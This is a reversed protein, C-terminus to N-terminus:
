LNRLIAFTYIGTNHGDSFEISYAYNGVPTMSVIDLPLTKELPLVQLPNKPQSDSDDSMDDAICRACPCANRLKTFEISQRTQDSWLIELSKPTRTLELPIVESM